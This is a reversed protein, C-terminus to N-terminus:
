KCFLVSAIIIIIGPCVPCCDDKTRIPNDCEPKPCDRLQCLVMGAQHLFCNPSLSLAPFFAGAM